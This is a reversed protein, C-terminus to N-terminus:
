NNYDIGLHRLLIKKTDPPLLPTKAITGLMANKQVELINSYNALVKKDKAPIKICDVLDNMAKQSNIFTNVLRKTKKDITNVTVNNENIIYIGKGYGVCELREPVKMKVFENQIKIKLSNRVKIWQEYEYTKAPPVKGDKVIIEWWGEWSFIENPKMKNLCDDVIKSIPRM